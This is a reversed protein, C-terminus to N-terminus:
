ATAPNQGAKSGGEPYEPDVEYEYNNIGLGVTMNLTQGSKILPWGGGTVDYAEGDKVGNTYTTSCDIYHDTQKGGIDENAQYIYWGYTGVDANGARLAAYLGAKQADLRTEGIQDAIYNQEDATFSSTMITNIDMAKLRDTFYSHDITMNNKVLNCSQKSLWLKSTDDTGTMTMQWAVDGTVSDDLQFSFLEGETMDVGFVNSTGVSVAGNYVESGGVTLVVNVSGASDYGVGYQKFTRNAM